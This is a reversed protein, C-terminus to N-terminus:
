KDLGEARGRSCVAPGSNLFLLSIKQRMAYYSVM